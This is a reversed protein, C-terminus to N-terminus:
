RRIFGARDAFSFGGLFRGFFFFVVAPTVERGLPFRATLGWFYFIRRLNAFGGLARRLMLLGAEPKEEPPLHDFGPAGIAGLLIADANLCATLTAPPLPSGTTAIASAGVPHEEFQFNHGHINAVERLVCVAQESVEPGVGDGPLVVIKLRM